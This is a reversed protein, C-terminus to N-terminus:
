GRDLTGEVARDITEKAEEIFDRDGARPERVLFAGGPAIELLADVASDGYFHSFILARGTAGGPSAALRALVNLTRIFDGFNESYGLAVFTWVGRSMDYRDLGRESDDDAVLQRLYADITKERYRCSERVDELTLRPGFYRKPELWAEWALATSAPPPAEGRFALYDPPSVRAQVVLQSPESM